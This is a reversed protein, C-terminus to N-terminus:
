FPECVEVIAISIRPDAIKNRNGITRNEPCDM